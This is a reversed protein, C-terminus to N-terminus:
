PTVGGWFKSRFNTESGWIKGEFIYIVRVGFKARQNESKVGFKAELSSTLDFGGRGRSISTGGERPM